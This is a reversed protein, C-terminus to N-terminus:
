TLLDMNGVFYETGCDMCKVKVCRAALESAEFEEHKINAPTIAFEYQTQVSQMRAFCNCHGNLRRVLEDVLAAALPRNAEIYEAEAEALTRIDDDSMERLIAQRKTRQAHITKQSIFTM